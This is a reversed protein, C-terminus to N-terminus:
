NVGKWIPKSDDWIRHRRLSSKISDKIFDKNNSGTIKNTKKIDHLDKLFSTRYKENNWKGAISEFLQGINIM